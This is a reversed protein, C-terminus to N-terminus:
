ALKMGIEHCLDPTVKGHAFSQFAHFALIGGEKNYRKKTIIM